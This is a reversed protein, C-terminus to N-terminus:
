YEIPRCGLIILEKNFLELSCRGEFIRRPYTNIWAEADKCRATTLCKDFDAGKRLGECRRLLINNNENTGRENPARAHCYYITTRKGVRRLAKEMREYDKFESGNDVTISKFVKYFDGGFRKEIRNLAKCVEDMTAYYTGPALGTITNSTGNANVTFTGVKTSKDSKYLDYKIGSFNNYGPLTAYSSDTSTKKLTVNGPPVLKYLLGDQKSSSVCLYVVFNDPVSGAPVASLATNYLSINVNLNTNSISQSKLESRWQSISKSTHFGTKVRAYSMAQSMRLSRSSNNNGLTANSNAPDWGKLTYYYALRAMDHTNPVEYVTATADGTHQWPDACVGKMGNIVGSKGTIVYACDIGNKKITKGSIKATTAAQAEYTGALPVLTGLVLVLALLMTFVRKTLTRAKEM